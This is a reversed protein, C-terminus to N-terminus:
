RAETTVFPSLAAAGKFPTVSSGWLPAGDVRYVARFASQHTSFAVHISQATQVGSRDVLAYQSLDALIVDGPTGVSEAQEIFAIPQGLLTRQPANAGNMNSLLIPVEGVTSTLMGPLTSSHALFIANGISGPWLQSLMKTANSFTFGGTQASEKNVTVLSGSNLIGTPMGAGGRLVADELRFRIESVFADLMLQGVTDASDELLEASVYGLAALKRLTLTLRGLSPQSPTISAAESTWAATVGGWRSGTARSKEDVLPVTLSNSGPGLTFRRCRSLIPSEGYVRRLIEREFQTGIAFGGDAGIGENMSRLLRSDVEGGPTQAVAVARLFRGFSHATANDPGWPANVRRDEGARVSIGDPVTLAGPDVADMRKALSASSIASEAKGLLGDIDRQEAATLSRNESSAKQLINEATRKYTTALAEVSQLYGM